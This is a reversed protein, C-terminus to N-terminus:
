AKRGMRATLQAIDAQAQKHLRISDSQEAMIKLYPRHAAAIAEVIGSAIAKIINM